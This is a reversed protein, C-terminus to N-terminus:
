GPRSVVQKFSWVLLLDAMDRCSVSSGCGECWLHYIPPHMDLTMKQPTKGCKVCDEPLVNAFSEAKEEEQVEPQEHRSRTFM